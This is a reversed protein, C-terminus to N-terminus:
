KENCPDPLGSLNFIQGKGNLFFMAKEIAGVAFFCFSGNM